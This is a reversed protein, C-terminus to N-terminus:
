KMQRLDLFEVTKTLNKGYEIICHTCNDYLHIICATDKRYMVMDHEEFKHKIDFYSDARKSEILMGTVIGVALVICLLLIIM